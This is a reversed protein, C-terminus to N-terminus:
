MYHLQAHSKRNESSLSFVDTWVDLAQFITVYGFGAKCEELDNERGHGSQEKIKVSKTQKGANELM